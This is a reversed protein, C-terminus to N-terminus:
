ALLFVRDWSPEVDTSAALLPLLVGPAGDLLGPQDVRGGRLEFCRYGLMSSPEHLGLLQETLKCAAEAFIPLGTDHAFRLTIELLGAVGHCFIPSDIRRVAVPRRYVAQMAEIALDRWEPRDLAVGALWLARAAGPAGYCWAARSPAWTSSPEPVVTPWNVGWADDVRYEILGTAMREVAEAQGPVVVGGSLALAMLALPGPIGHALGCNLHGNPYLAPREADGMVEPPTWWRPRCGSADTLAVLAGLAAELATSAAPNDERRELLYAGVGALGSIVDFEGVSVGDPTERKLHEAQAAAQPLLAEDLSSLLRGYRTGGRSLACGAYAVGALGGFLSADLSPSAAAIHAAVGLYEHGSRDWGEDPYCADLYAFALAIGADGQALSTPHWWASDPYATQTAAAAAAAEVLRRDRLRNAGERAVALAQAALEPPL